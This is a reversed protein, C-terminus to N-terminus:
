LLATPITYTPVGVKEGQASKDWSAIVGFKPQYAKLFSTFSRTSKGGLKAEVPILHDKLIFDVEAKATTRWFALSEKKFHTALYNEHLNSKEPQTFEFQDILVNRLGLDFFYYKPNKKLETVLNRHFPSLPKLIYTEELIQLIQKLERFNMKAIQGINDYNVLDGVTAAIYKLVKMVREKNEVGYLRVLDKEVYTNFVNRLLTVKKPTSKETVVRPYSGYTWYEELYRNLKNLHPSSVTQPNQFSFQHQRYEHFVQSDKAQLMEAFSFPYLEFFLVRGVLYEGLKAIDLTSSGSVLFKVRPNTDYLLKLKQGADEVYQIEDFLFFFPRDKERLFYEIYEQPNKTFKEKELQDEFTLFAIQNPSYQAALKQGLRALLTTKGSQRPGRIAIIERDTLYPLIKDEIERPVYNEPIISNFNNM